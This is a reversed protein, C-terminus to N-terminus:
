FTCKKWLRNDQSGRDHADNTWCLDTRGVMHLEQRETWLLVSAPFLLRKINQLKACSTIEQSYATKDHILHSPLGLYFSLATLIVNTSLLFEVSCNPEDPKGQLMRNLNASKDFINRDELIVTNPEAAVFDGVESDLACYNVLESPLFGSNKKRISSTSSHEPLGCIRIARCRIRQVKDTLPHHKIEEEFLQLNWLIKGSKKWWPIGFPGCQGSLHIFGCWASSLM